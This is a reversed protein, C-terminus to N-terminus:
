KRMEELEYSLHEARAAEQNALHMYKLAQMLSSDVRYNLNQIEIEKLELLSKLEENEKKLDSEQMGSCSFFSLAILSVFFISKYKM